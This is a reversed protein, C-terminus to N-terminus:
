GANCSSLQDLSSIRDVQYSLIQLDVPCSLHALFSHIATPMYSWKTFCSLCTQQKTTILCM